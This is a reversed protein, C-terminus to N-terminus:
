GRVGLRDILWRDGVRVLAIRMPARERAPPAFGATARDGALEVRVIDPDSVALRFARRQERPLREVIAPGVASLTAACDAPARRLQACAGDGDGSVYARLYTATREQVARRDEAPTPAEAGREDGGCGALALLLLAALPRVRVRPVTGRAPPATM